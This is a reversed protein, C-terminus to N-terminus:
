ACHIPKDKAKTPNRSWMLHCCGKAQLKCSITWGLMWSCSWPVRERSSCPFQYQFRLTVLSMTKGTDGSGKRTFAPSQKPFNFGKSIDVTTKTLGRKRERQFVPGSPSFSLASPITSFFLFFTPHGKTKTLLTELDCHSVMLYKTQAGLLM